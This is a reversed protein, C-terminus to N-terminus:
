ARSTYRKSDGIEDIKKELDRLSEPVGYFNYISKTKEGITVQITTGIAHGIIEEGRETQKSIYRDKFSFFDIRHIEEVLKKVDEISIKHTRRGIVKVSKSGEYIVTGDGSISLSYTPCGSLYTPNAPEWGCSAGDRKMVILIKDQAQKSNLLTYGDTKKSSMSYILILFVTFIVARRMTIGCHQQYIERRVGANVPAGFPMASVWSFQAEAAGASRKNSAAKYYDINDIGM